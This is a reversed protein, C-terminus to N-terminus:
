RSARAAASASRRSATSADRRQMEHLLTVLIRAGRPASRTASPSPAATSTSGRRTAASSGASARAGPRRLGRQGRHPRHRDLTLGAKPWRRAADGAGPRHGHDRARRRRPTPASAACPRSRRAREAEDAVHGAGAGGRRRQHRLRQRRHRHRGEQLRSAPEGLAELTTGSAPHEDRTSSSRARAARAGDVPVIEDTFRGAEIAARGEAPERCRSSTRSRAPSARIARRHERRTIGMHCDDFACWLGDQIMTDVLEGHGMRYGTRAKPLLYPALSMNEQRRRRRHRRRRGIPRRPWPWPRAPRLRVGQQRVHGPGDGPHRGRAGGPPRPEVRGASLVNGMLVEDVMEPQVGARELVARIVVAGLEHAPVTSLTGNFSGIATRAASVIVAERM